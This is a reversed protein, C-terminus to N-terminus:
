RGVTPAPRAATSSPAPETPTRLEYVPSLNVLAPDPDIAPDLALATIVDDPLVLQAAAAADAGTHGDDVADREARALASHTRARTIAAEEAAVAAALRARPRRGRHRDRRRPRTAPAAQLGPRGGV